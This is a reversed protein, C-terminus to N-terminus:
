GFIVVADNRVSDVLYPSIAKETLLDVPIHLAGALEQEIRVLELLSKPKQFSVLIDIDSRQGAQGRAYSGFVSIKKAGYQKLVGIITEKAAENLTRKRGAM